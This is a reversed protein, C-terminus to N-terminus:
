QPTVVAFGLASECLVAVPQGPGDDAVEDDGFLDSDTIVLIGPQGNKRFGVRIMRDQRGCQLSQPLFVALFEGGEDRVALQVEFLLDGMRQRLLVHDPDLLFPCEAEDRLLVGDDIVARFRSAPLLEPGHQGARCRLDLVAHQQRNQLSEVQHCSYEGFLPALEALPVELAPDLFDGLFRDGTVGHRLCDPRHVGGDHGRHDDRGDDRASGSRAVRRFWRGFCQHGYGYRVRTQQSEAHPCYEYGPREPVPEWRRESALCDIRLVATNMTLATVPPSSNPWPACFSKPQNPPPPGSPVPAM